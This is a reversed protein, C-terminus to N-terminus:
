PLRQALAAALPALPADDIWPWVEGDVDLSLSVRAAPQPVDTTVHEWAGALTEAVRATVADARGRRGASWALLTVIAIRALDDPARAPAAEGPPFPASAVVGIRGPGPGAERSAVIWRTLAAGFREADARADHALPLLMTLPLALLDRQIAGPDLPANVLSPHALLAGAADLVPQFADDDGSAIAGDDGPMPARALAADDVLSALAAAQEPLWV